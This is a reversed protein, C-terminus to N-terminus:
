AMLKRDLKSRNAAVVVVFVFFFAALLFSFILFFLFQFFWIFQQFIEFHSVSYVGGVFCNIKRVCKVYNWRMEDEAEAYKVKRVWLLVDSLSAGVFLLCAACFFPHPEHDHCKNLWIMRWRICWWVFFFSVYSCWQLCEMNLKSCIYHCLTWADDVKKKIKNAIEVNCLPLCFSWKKINRETKRKNNNGKM